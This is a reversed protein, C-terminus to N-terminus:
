EWPPLFTGGATSRGSLVVMDDTYRYQLYQVKLVKLFLESRCTPYIFINKAKPLPSSPPPPPPCNNGGGELIRRVGRRCNTGTSIWYTGNGIQAGFVIKKDIQNLFM